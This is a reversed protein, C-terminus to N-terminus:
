LKRMWVSHQMGTSTWRMIRTFIGRFAKPVPPVCPFNQHFIVEYGLRRGNKVFSKKSFECYTRNGHLPNTNAVFGKGKLRYVANVLRRFLYTSSPVEAYLIGGPKLWHVAQKLGAGPDPLHQLAELFIFDFRASEFVGDQLTCCQLATASLSPNNQVAQRYLGQHPEIGQVEGFVKALTRLSAGLGFGVDLASANALPKRLLDTLIGLEYVFHDQHWADRTAWQSADLDGELYTHEVPVPSPNSYVLGCDPCRYIRIATGSLREPAFGQPRDLRKGWYHSASVPMSCMPCKTHELFRLASMIRGPYLHAAIKTIEFPKESERREGGIRNKEM